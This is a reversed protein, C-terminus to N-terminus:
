NNCNTSTCAQRKKQLSVSSNMKMILNIVDPLGRCKANQFKVQTNTYGYCVLWCGKPHVSPKTERAPQCEPINHFTRNFKM